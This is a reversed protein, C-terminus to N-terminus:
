WDLSGDERRTVDTRGLLSLLDRLVDRRVDSDIYGASVHATDVLSAFGLCLYRFKERGAPDTTLEDFLADTLIAFGTPDKDAGEEFISISQLAIGIASSFGELEAETDGGPIIPDYPM